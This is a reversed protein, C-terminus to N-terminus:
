LLKTTSGSAQSPISGPKNMEKLMEKAIRPRKHSWIFKLIIKELETFSKMPLKILIANFRYIAKHLIAMKVINKWDLLM